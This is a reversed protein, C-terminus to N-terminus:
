LWGTLEDSLTLKNIRGIKVKKIIGREELDSVIRSVKPKTLGTLEVIEKQTIEKYEKILKIIMKEEDTLINMLMEGKTQEYENLIHNLNDITNNKKNIIDEYKKIKENLENIKESLKNNLAIKKNYNHELETLKSKLETIESICRNIRESLEANNNELRKNLEAKRNLETTLETLQLNLSNVEDSYNNIKEILKNNEENLSQIINEKNALETELSNIKNKLDGISQLLEEKKLTIEEIYKTKLRGKKKEYIIGYGLGMAFLILIVILINYYINHNPNNNKVPAPASLIAYSVTAGFYKEDHSLKKKWIVYIRKGDTDITYDQPTISLLGEAPSVISAGAPLIVTMTFNSDVAPVNISLLKKDGKDWVIDSNFSINIIGLEGYKIPKELDITIITSGDKLKKSFSKVGKNSDVRLDDASQPIIYTIESINKSDNNYIELTISEHVSNSQNVDCLVKYNEFKIADVSNIMCFLLIAVLVSGMAWKSKFM